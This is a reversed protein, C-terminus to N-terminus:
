TPWQVKGTNGGNFNVNTLRTLTDEMLIPWSWHIRHTYGRNLQGCSTYGDVILNAVDLTDQRQRSPNMLLLNALSGLKSWRWLNIQVPSSSLLDM